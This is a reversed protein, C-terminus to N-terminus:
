GIVYISSRSDELPLLFGKMGRKEKKANRNEKMLNICIMFAEAISKQDGGGGDTKGGSLAILVRRRLSSAIKPDVIGINIESDAVMSRQNINASGLTTFIDDVLLLKSHIYIERYRWGTEDRECSNLMATCVRIGAIKEFNELSLKEISNAYRAVEQLPMSATQPMAFSGALPHQPLKREKVIRDNEAKILKEQGTMAEHQGLRALTNHTRPIMGELEPM